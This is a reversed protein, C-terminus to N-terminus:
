RDGQARPLFLFFRGENGKARVDVRLAREREMECRNSLAYSRGGEVEVAMTRANGLTM